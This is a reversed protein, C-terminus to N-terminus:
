EGTPQKVWKHNSKLMPHPMNFTPPGPPELPMKNSKALNGLSKNGLIKNELVKNRLSENRSSKM